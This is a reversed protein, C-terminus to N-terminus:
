EVPIEQYQQSRHRQVPQQISLLFSHVSGRSGVIAQVKGYNSQMAASIRMKGRQLGVAIGDVDRMHAVDVTVGQFLKGVAHLLLHSVGSRRGLVEAFNERLFIDICNRNGRGIVPVRGHRNGPQLRSLIDVYFLWAAVIRRLACQQDLRLPLVALQHLHARLLARRRVGDLNDVLNVVAQDAPRIVGLGPVAVHLFDMPM